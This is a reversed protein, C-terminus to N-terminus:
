PVLGKLIALCGACTSSLNKLIAATFIAVIIIVEFSMVAKSNLTSGQDFAKWNVSFKDKKAILHVAKIFLRGILM